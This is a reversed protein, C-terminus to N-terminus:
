FRWQLQAAIINVYADEYEGVLREGAVERTVPNLTPYAHDIDADKVFLFAYGFDFSLQDSLRYSAGVTLWTRDNGPIRPTRDRASPIAEEDFAIGARFTWPRNYRYAVGLAFRWTDEWNEPTLSITQGTDRDKVRLEDFRSWRTWIVGAMVAWREDLQRYLSLYASEPLEVGAEVPTVSVAGSAPGLAASVPLVGTAEGTLTQNVKSRYSVGIRTSSDIEYLLGLNFGVGWDDGDLESFGDAGPLVPFEQSLTAEIYQVSLGAGVSWQENIRYAISPNINITLVESEIAAYRGVWGRDYETALAFPANIGLGFWIDPTVPLAYYLNPIVGAKGADGGDAGATTSAIDHYSTSTVVGQGGVLLEPSSLRAMGAPNFYLTSADEATAADGAFASGLGKVSQEFIAFGAAQVTGCVGIWGVLGLVRLSYCRLWSFNM